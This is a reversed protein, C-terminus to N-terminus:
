YPYSAESKTRNWKAEGVKQMEGNEKQRSYEVRIAEYDITIDDTPEGGGGGKTQIQSIVCDALFYEMFVKHNRRFQIVGERIKRGASCAEVLGPTAQDTMKSIKIAEFKIKGADAGGGGGGGGGAKQGINEENKADFTVSTVEFAFKGKLSQDKDVAEGTALAEGKINGPPLFYMYIDTTSSSDSM